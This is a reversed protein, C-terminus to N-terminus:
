PAPSRQEGMGFRRLEHFQLLQVLERARQRVTPSPPAAACGIWAPEEFDTGDSWNIPTMDHRSLPSPSRRLESRRQPSREGCSPTFPRFPSTAARELVLWILWHAAAGVRPEDRTWEVFHAGHFQNGLVIPRFPSLTSLSAATPGIRGCVRRERIAFDAPSSHLAARILLKSAGLHGATSPSM